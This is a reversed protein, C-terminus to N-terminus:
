ERWTANSTVQFIANRSVGFQSALESITKIEFLRRIQKAKEVNLKSHRMKEGRCNRGKRVCDRNNDALTGLFLHTPKVCKRNDCKHLVCIGAPLLGRFIEWSARHAYEM